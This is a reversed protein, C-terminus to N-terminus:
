PINLKRLPEAPANLRRKAEEVFSPILEVRFYHCDLLKAAALTTGSGAFPDLVLDGPETSLKLCRLPLELPFAAM